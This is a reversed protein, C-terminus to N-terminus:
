GTPPSAVVLHSGQPTLRGSAVLDCVIADVRVRMEESIRPFGLLRCAASPIAEPEMGLASATVREVALALEEPAVLDLRRSAPPLASRDRAALSPAPSPWLFDGRREVIGQRITQEIASELASQIRTGLRKIGAADTVRRSVEDRHVPGEIRVVREVWSALRPIPIAHLDQGNLHLDLTALAYVAAGTQPTASAEDVTERVYGAHESAEDSHGNTSPVATGLADLLRHLEGDPDRFWDTSWVHHLRWGLGELVQPRLRDRDRASRASRYSAGDCEIGLRYRSPEAPDVVALDLTFGSSGVARRTEVGASTLAAHVADEFPATPAVGVAAATDLRGHQAYGLFTKLARVGRAPTRDLDIDDATLNSFVECRLRARTILVNLRREGGDANLPGFSMALYGDATRGYGISIFIVDREDGQVNELNKVFFPEPGDLAFFTECASDERRLLELREQIAGMQAGSFAAVGLTLREEAPQSLQDKAFRMVAQAVADAELPNTRTGGRDYVTEPLHRLFLGRDNQSSDASPFVVLRDDYYEHNAVAILSEHRSRYHWRLMREPAGQAVFLSLVSEVDASSEEEDTEDAAMLRDFFQTPPLQRSDGVVVAQKGRLLSGLADIPKVQSAEDFIVLDFTLVGPELFNAVSLPSMMFVPKIAKVANGAKKMLQRLPLHRSKKEFERRLVALQGGGEQRPMREWHGLAHLVRNHRLVQRDLERFAQITHEQGRGDFAALAERERFSQTLLEEHFHRFFALVLFRDAEPWSEALPMLGGLEERRARESLHNFAVLGQLEDARRLWSDLLAEVEQFGLDEIETDAGFRASGDFDLFRTVAQLADAHSTLAAKLAKARPILTSIDPDGALFALIGEPLRRQRVHHHLKRVWDALEAFAKWDSREGQWRSGFLRAGLTEHSRVVERHRRVSLVADILALRDDLGQPPTNRCLTALRHKARRYRASLFCWWHRGFANLDHRSELLDQDWAEPLLVDQYGRKLDALTNGSEFLQELDSRRSHWENSPLTAGPWDAAKSAQRVGRLLLECQSRLGPVSLGMSTALRAAAEKLSVTEARATQLLGRLRNIETPLLVARRAGWFPHDHPVGVDHLLGELQEVLARRRKLDYSSWGALGAVEFPPPTKSELAAQLRLLEGYADHPTIGTSGIPTNVAACYANLRDRLEGLIKGDDDASGLRPRGLGLTRRLEDLVSKKRTKHSHLELCADGLGSADLRRKVVELAAMKEAVFLVSKKEGIAWAIMNTITQSKGTGPPGQIVLNRGQKVDLIALTQSADADVVLRLESASQHADIDDDEGILAAPERFGEQLLARVIGHDGPRAGEPWASPDLDRYMLFKGFSFFGLAVEERQVSWGDRGNISQAVSDFYSEIVLEDADPLEPLDIAFDAKLKEALSLNTGLEEDTGRLRFRERASSRELEVPVLLLPARLEKSPSEDDFWVLMGLALFLTNVGQEELSTRASQYIALLRAQLQDSARSTQLRHDTRDASAREPSAGEEPQALPGVAEVGPAALFTLKRKEKVLAEFLQTPSEGVIELGKVRPRFNLLPNRLSLDLLERRDTELRTHFTLESDAVM